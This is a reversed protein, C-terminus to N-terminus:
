TKLANLHCYPVACESQSYQYLTYNLLNSQKQVERERELYHNINWERSYSGEKM